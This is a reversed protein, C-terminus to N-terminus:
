PYLWNLNRDGEWVAASLNGGPDADAYLLAGMIMQRLNNSCPVRRARERAASLAPLLLAALIGIIAITVLLEALTFGFRRRWLSEPTQWQMIEVRWASLM